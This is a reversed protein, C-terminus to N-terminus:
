NKFEVSTWIDGGQADWDSRLKNIESGEQELTKVGAEYNDQDIKPLVM